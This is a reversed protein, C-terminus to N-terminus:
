HFGLQKKLKNRETDGAGYISAPQARGEDLWKQLQAIQERQSVSLPVQRKLSVIIDETIFERGQNFAIVMADIIAQEIEAGVYGESEQSLEDLNFNDPLRNRKKLHLAFIEKREAQTPLDLFFIEDFRGRRFLEPPLRGIDNATAVVFVPAQKEQMWTLITGLVRLNTGGDSDGTGGMAKEIEDIWMICPAVTEATKLATRINQESEGYWKQFVAGMDLRLLPVHWLGAIMKASLSKGTGSIGILGVGKPMELGYAKAEDTFAKSRHHLWEKLVELGGVNALSENVTCFELARAEKIINRKEEIVLAIDEVSLRGDNVIARAFVRQAQSTTLGLAARVLEKRDSDTIELKIGPTKILTQLAKELESVDPLPFDLLVSCNRLESPLESNGSVIIISKKTYKLKEALTRLKRKVPPINWLDHFDLLIFIAEDKSEDIYNLAALADVSTPLQLSNPDHLKTFGDGVDWSFLPRARKECVQKISRLVREEEFTSIVVLTFRARLCVDLEREFDETDIRKM